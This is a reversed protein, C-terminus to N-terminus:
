LRRLLEVEISVYTPETGLTALSRQIVRHTLRDGASLAVQLEGEVSTMASAYGHPQAYIQSERIVAAATANYVMTGFMRDATASGAAQELRHRIRYVGAVPVTIEGNVPNYWASAGETVTCGTMTVATADTWVPLVNGAATGVVKIYLRANHVNYWTGNFRGWINGLSDYAWCPLSSDACTPQVSWVGANPNANPLLVGFANGGQIAVYWSVGQDHSM